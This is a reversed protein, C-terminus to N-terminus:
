KGEEALSSGYKLLIDGMAKLMEGRMQLMRGLVKPDQGPAMMGMETPEMMGGKMQQMMACTACDMPMRMGQGMMGRGMMPSQGSPQEQQGAQGCMPMRGGAPHQAAMASTWIGMVLLLAICGSMTRKM